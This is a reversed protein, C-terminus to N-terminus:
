KCRKGPASQPCSSQSSSELLDHSQHLPLLLAARQHVQAGGGVCEGVSLRLPILRPEARTSCSPLLPTRLPCASTDPGHSPVQFPSRGGLQTGQARKGRLHSYEALSRPETAPKPFGPLSESLRWHQFCLLRGPRSHRGGRVPRPLQAGYGM